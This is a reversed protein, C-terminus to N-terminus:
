AKLVSFVTFGVLEVNEQLDSKLQDMEEKSSELHQELQQLQFLLCSFM